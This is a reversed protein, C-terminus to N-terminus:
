IARALTLVDVRRASGSRLIRACEAVTAGTTFVDDVLLISRDQIPSPDNIGFAGKINQQRERQGLGTQPATFRVRQLIDTKIDIPNGDNEPCHYRPWRAVMLHAQNFGRRRRKRIHLPVPIVWDIEGPEWHRTFTHYLLEGLPGALESRGHYKLRHILTLLPGVYIGASRARNFQNRHNLCNGCLHDEDFRGAFMMGCSPCIPSQVAQFEDLCQFCLYPALLQKFAEALSNEQGAAKHTGAGSRNKLRDQRDSFFANCVHCKPPFLASKFSQIISTFLSRM